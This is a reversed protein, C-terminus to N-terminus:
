GRGGATSQGCAGVEPVLRIDVRRNAARGSETDNRTVPQSAAFGQVAFCSDPIDGMRQMWDRVASARAQSLELNKAVDGTADAHGAIVILWGPHVKIGLLANVLVKTSGSKLEASGADFLSLSDLQVPEPMVRKNAEVAQWHKWGFWGALAIVATIVLLGLTIRGRRIRREAALAFPNQAPPMVVVPMVLAPEPVRTLQPVMMSPSSSRQMRQMLNGVQELLAQFTPVPVQVQCNLQQNLRRLEVELYALASVSSVGWEVTRLLPQLQSFLWGLIDLRVPPSTPWLRPWEGVLATILAVGEAMGAPGHRHSRALAFSAATQLEAGNQEFLRLCLAEVKVWDVDPCAPHNLKVLEDHLVKFGDFGHPDGGLRVRMEFLATM